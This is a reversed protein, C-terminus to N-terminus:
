QFSVPWNVWVRVPRGAHLGPKFRYSKVAELATEEFSALDLRSRFIKADTVLGNEDVLIRCVVTPSVALSTNPARPPQGQLLQPAADGAEVLATVEITEVPGSAVGTAESTRRGVALYAVAVVAAVLVPVAVFLATGRRDMPEPGARTTQPRAGSDTLPPAESLRRARVGAMSSVGTEYPDTGLPKPVRGEDRLRAADMLLKQWDEHITRAPCRIGSDVRFHADDANVLAVFADRGELNGFRADVIAGDSLFFVGHGQATAVLVRCTNRGYVNAQVLDALSLDSTQGSLPM